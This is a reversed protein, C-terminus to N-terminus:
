EAKETVDKMKQLGFIILGGVVFWLIDFSSFSLPAKPTSLTQPGMIIAYFSGIMMGIILFIMISRHKDLAWKIVRVVSVIGALIGLAFVILIPLYDLNFSIAAKVASIIPVYLGFILLLTSGSIGPLVMASIAFMAAVFVYLILSINLSSLDVTSGQGAIPNFYTILAVIAIGIIGAIISSANFKMNAREEKVVIPIAFLIFGMFLSSIKYIQADFISALISVAMLFGVVWGVMIKILFIIAEKKEQMSGAVLADLSGIFKDYFGLLFAVTGGSVGPVSDALAMCFGRIFNLIMNSYGGKM